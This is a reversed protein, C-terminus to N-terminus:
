KKEGIEESCMESLIAWIQMHNRPKAEDTFLRNVIMSLTRIDTAEHKQLFETIYQTDTKGLKKFLSQTSAYNKFRNFREIRNRM